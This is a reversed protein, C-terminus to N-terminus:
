ENEVDNMTAKAFEELEKQPEGLARWLDAGSNLASTVHSKWEDLTFTYTRVKYDSSSTREIFTVTNQDSIMYSHTIVNRKAENRLENLAKKIADKSNYDSRKVLEYLIRIKVGYLMGSTLIQTDKAPLKLFKGIAFDLTMDATAWASHYMGMLRHFEPNALMSSKFDRNMLVSREVTKYFVHTCFTFM